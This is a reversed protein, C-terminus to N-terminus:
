GGLSLRASLAVDLLGTTAAAVVTRREAHGTVVLDRGFAEGVAAGAEQCVLMGGLYDWPALSHPACDMFADLQGCAVACLDLAAAGLSRFQAWGLRRKPYGSLGVIAQDLRDCRSPSIRHGDLHAGGGRVAEFTAGSAQNVVVAALPGREDLACLSTAWWPIGRAANTSGDVPDLVVVLERDAEHAGSEESVVGLGAGLLVEIAAEDAVLDSRYQDSRTGALGWDELSALSRAVASAAEHLIAVVQAPETSVSM